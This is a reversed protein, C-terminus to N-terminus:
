SAEIACTTRDVFATCMVLPDRPDLDDAGTNALPPITTSIVIRDPPQAIAGGALTVMLALIASLGISVTLEAILGRLHHRSTGNATQTWPQAMSRGGSQQALTAQRVTPSV